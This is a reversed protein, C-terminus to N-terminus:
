LEVLNSIVPSETTFHVTGWSLGVGFGCGIIETRKGKIKDAIQTVITLPISASSTNGFHTMSYPVQEETLKLKKRITENMMRNAQHFVYYEVNNTDIGYESVLKKISKPATTIGFAFVDMGKMLTQFGHRERGDECMVPILDKATVQNRCGGVPKIIADYGSGDTGFHFKFGEAGEKYEIATATAAFGFLQDAEEFCQKRADGAILIGKKIMGTQMLSSIVSLGYVWGSCGLSIDLAFCDKSLGLKNQLICSTAPLIYDPTQTVFILAGIEKKDWNLDTILQEAAKEGLDSTTFENSYRKEIVGTTEAFANADYKDTTSITPMVQKPVGASMGVIEVNKIQLFAM